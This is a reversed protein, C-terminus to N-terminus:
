TIRVITVIKPFKRTILAKWLNGLRCFAELVMRALKDTASIKIVTSKMNCIALMIMPLSDCGRTIHLKADDNLRVKLEMMM